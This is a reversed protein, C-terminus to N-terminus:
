TAVPRAEEPQAPVPAEEPAEPPEVPLDPQKKPWRADALADLGLERMEGENAPDEMWVLFKAPDNECRDRLAAPLADFDAQAAKVRIMSDLYDDATSFDGYSPQRSNLHVLAGGSAWKRMIANVDCESSFSQKTRSVGSVPTVVRQTDWVTRVKAESQLADKKTM